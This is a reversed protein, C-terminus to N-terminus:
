EEVEYYLNGDQDLTFKPALDAVAPCWHTATAGEELKAEVEKAWPYSVRLFYAESPATWTYAGAKKATMETIAKRNIYAKQSDYWSFRFYDGAGDKRSFTYQKGPIISIYTEMAAISDDTQSLNGTTDYWFGPTSQSRVILNLGSPGPIGQIGQVGQAGTDGKDGKEGQVGQIGQEGKEGQIGQEGQDGKEGQIGQPGDFEGSEKAQKLAENIAEPLEEEKVYGDEMKEELQDFLTKVEQLQQVILSRLEYYSIEEGQVETTPASGDISGLTTLEYNLQEVLQHLYSKIQTIQEKDSLGTINPYRINVSM